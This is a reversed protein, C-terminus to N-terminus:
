PRASISGPEFVAIAEVELLLRPDLLAGVIIATGAPGTDAVYNKKVAAYGQYAEPSLAYCTLKVVDEFTAGAASLSAELNKFIQEAQALPDGEGVVRDGDFAVHGSLYVTTGARVAWSMRPSVVLGEPNFAEHRM